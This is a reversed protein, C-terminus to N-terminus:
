FGTSSFINDVLAEAKKNFEYRAADYCSKCDKCIAAKGSQTKDSAAMDSLHKIHGCNTCRRHSSLEGSRGIFRPKM